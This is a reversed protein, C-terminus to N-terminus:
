FGYVKAANDVLVRQRTAADTAWEFFRDLLLGAEPLPKMRPHPWDTGWVRREPYRAVFARLNPVPDAWLQGTSSARDSCVKIWANGSDLLRPLAFGGIRTGPVLGPIVRSSLIEGLRRAIRIGTRGSRAMVLPIHGRRTDIM